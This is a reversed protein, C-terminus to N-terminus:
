KKKSKLYHNVTLEIAEECRMIPTWELLNKAKQTSVQLSDTLRNILKKKFLLFGLLKLIAIPIYILRLSKNMSLAIRKILNKVSLDEDDSIFFIQNKANPHKICLIIFSCLNQLSILSRLNNSAKLPIPFGRYILSMLSLFNGGVNPGYVLPPRIIVIEINTENALKTLKKEAEIKSIAYPDSSNLRHTENFPIGPSSKEGVVKITSIFIFRKVGNQSAQYALNITADVNIKEYLNIKKRNEKKLIHVRAATHIITDVDSLILTWDIHNELNLNLKKEDVFNRSIKKIKFNRDELSKCLNKGLFGDSGTIMIKRNDSKM